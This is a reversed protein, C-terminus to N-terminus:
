TWPVTAGQKLALVLLLLAGFIVVIPLGMLLFAWLLLGHCPRDKRFRLWSLLLLLLGIAICLVPFMMAAFGFLDFGEIQDALFLICLSASTLIVAIATNRREIKQWHTSLDIMGAMVEPTCDAPRADEEVRESRILELVSVELLGALPEILKIDPFGLGREWKSVAKDTVNLREALEKQTWGTRKRLEALFIGFKVNDM